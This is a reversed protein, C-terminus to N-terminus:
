RGEQQDLRDHLWQLEHELAGLERYLGRIEKDKEVLQNRLFRILEDRRDPEQLRSSSEDSPVVARRNMRPPVGYKPSSARYAYTPEGAMDADDSNDDSEDDTEGSFGESVGGDDLRTYLLQDATVDFIRILKHIVGYDPTTTGKEYNSITNAKVGLKAALDSQKWGCRKRLYILNGSLFIM